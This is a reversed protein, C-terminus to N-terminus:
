LFRRDIYFAGRGSILRAPVTCGRFLCGGFLVFAILSARIGRREWIFGGEQIFGGQSAGSRPSRVLATCYPVLTAGGRHLREAIAPIDVSCVAQRIPM